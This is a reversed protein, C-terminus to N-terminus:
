TGRVCAAGRAGAGLRMAEALRSVRGGEAQTLLSLSSWLVGTVAVAEAGVVAEAARLTSRVATLFAGSPPLFPCTCVKLSSTTPGLSCM